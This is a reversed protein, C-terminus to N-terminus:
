EFHEIDNFYKELLARVDEWDNNTISYIATDRLTGDDRIRENRLVGEYTAGISLIAKASRTNNVDTVLQVRVAGLQEFCYNLLLYKCMKNYGTHWYEPLLWSWGIELKKHESFINHFMTCGIIKNKKKDIIVFTYQEGTGRKLIASELYRRLKDVKSYNVSMFEWIQANSGIKELEDIYGRDLPVLKVYRQELIVPHKIWSM